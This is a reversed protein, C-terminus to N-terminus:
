RQAARSPEREASKEKKPARDAEVSRSLSDDTVEVNKSNSLILTPSPIVKDKNYKHYMQGNEGPVMVPEGKEDREYDHRMKQTATLKVTDGEHVVDKLNDYVKQNMRVYAHVAPTVESGPEYSRQFDRVVHMDYYGDKFKSKSIQEVTGEITKQRQDHYNDRQWGKTNTWLTPNGKGITGDRKTYEHGDRLGMHPKSIQGPIMVGDGPEYPKGDHEPVDYTIVDINQHVDRAPVYVTTKTAPGKPMQVQNIYKITGRFYRSYDTEKKESKTDDSKTDAPESFNMEDDAFDKAYMDKDAM